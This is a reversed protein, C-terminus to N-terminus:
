SVKIWFENIKKSIASQSFNMAKGIDKQSEGNIYYRRLIARMEINEVADVFEEAAALRKMLTITRSRLRRRLKRLYEEGNDYGQLSKPIPKGTRYDKYFVSVYTSKPHEMSAKIAEIEQRLSICQEMEKRTM